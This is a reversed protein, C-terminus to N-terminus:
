SNLVNISLRVEMEIVRNFRISKKLKQGLGTAAREQGRESGTEYNFMM